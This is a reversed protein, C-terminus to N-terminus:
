LVIFHRKVETPISIWLTRRIPLNGMQNNLMTKSFHLLILSLEYATIDPQPSYKVKITRDPIWGIDEIIEASM